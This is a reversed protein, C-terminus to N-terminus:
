TKRDLSLKKTFTSYFNLYYIRRVSVIRQSTNVNSTQNPSELNTLLREVNIRRSEPSNPRSQNNRSHSTGM